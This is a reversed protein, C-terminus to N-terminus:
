RPVEESDPRVVGDVPANRFLAKVKGWTTSKTTTPPGGGCEFEQAADYPAGVLDSAPIWYPYGFYASKFLTDCNTVITGTGTRGWQPPFPHDTAQLGMWYLENGMVNFYIDREYKYIPYGFSDCGIFTEVGLGTYVELLQDPVCGGDSYFKWNLSTIPPDGPVWNYYGGYGIAHSIMADTAVLFDNALESELGFMAIIESSLTYDNLDVPESWCVDRSGPVTEVPGSRPKLPVPTVAQGDRRVLGEARSRCPNEICPNPTCTKCIGQPLGGQATCEETTLMRCVEDGFCCAHEIVAILCPNPDCVAGADLPRGGMEACDEAPLVRCSEDDFCCARPQTAPVCPNPDCPVGDGTPTGGAEVCDAPIYLRCTGFVFCCARPQPCPNPDCDTGNGLPTGGTAACAAPLAITCSGDRYCCAQPQPCPNPSCDTGNGQPTGDQSECEGALMYACHGDEFCCAQPQPCPNPACVTCAGQPLGGAAICEENLMITCAGDGFCCARAILALACLDPDCAVGPM